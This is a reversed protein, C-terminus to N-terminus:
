YQKAKSEALDADVSGLVVSLEILDGNRILQVLVEDGPSM